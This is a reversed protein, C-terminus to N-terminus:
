GIMSCEKLDKDDTSSKSHNLINYSCQRLSSFDDKFHLSFYIIFFYCSSFFAKWNVFCTKERREEGQVRRVKLAELKRM